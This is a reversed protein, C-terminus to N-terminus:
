LDDMPIAKEWYVQFDEITTSSATYESVRCHKGMVAAIPPMNIAGKPHYLFRDHPIERFPLARVDLAVGKEGLDSQLAEISELPLRPRRDRSSRLQEEATILKIMRIPPASDPAFVDDFLDIISADFYPDMWYVYEQCSSIYRTLTTRNFEPNSADVLTGVVDGSQEEQDFLPLSAFSSFVRDQNHVYAALKHYNNNQPLSSYCFQWDGVVILCVRARTIAVNLLNYTRELWGLSGENIGEALVTSFLMFDREDGQYQHATGSTVRKSNPYSRELWDRISNEQARYPTVIGISSDILGLIELRQLLAPVGKQLGALEINNRGSGNQPREFAGRIDVWHIGGVKNIFQNQYGRRTLDTKVNLLGGYFNQNSFNIIRADSRYHEDLLITGPHNGISREALDYLSISTYAYKEMPVQYRNGIQREIVRSLTAVHRLQNPDGIIVNKRSRFLLPIASPIDCQSAEDVIVIDFLGPILPFNSRATLNTIAWVPFLKLADPFTSIETQKLDRYLAPNENYTITTLQKVASIYRKARELTENDISAARNFWTLRMYEGAVQFLAENAQQYQHLAEPESPLAELRDNIDELATLVAWLMLLHNWSNLITKIDDLAPADDLFSFEPHKGDLFEQLSSLSVLHYFNEQFFGRCDSYLQNREGNLLDLNGLIAKLDDELAGMDLLSLELRELDRTLGAPLLSACGQYDTKAAELEAQLAQNVAMLRAAHLADQLDSWQRYQEEIADNRLSAHEQDPEINALLVILDDVARRRQNRIGLLGLFRNWLSVRGDLHQKLIGGPQELRTLLEEAEQGSCDVAIAQQRPSLNKYAEDLAQGAEFNAQTLGDVQHRSRMGEIADLWNQILLSLADLNEKPPWALADGGFPGWQSEFGALRQLIPYRDPDAFLSRLHAALQKRQDKFVLAQHTFTSVTKQLQQQEIESHRVRSLEQARISLAEPVLPVLRKQELQHSRLQGLLDRVHELQKEAAMLAKRVSQYRMHYASLDVKQAQSLASEMQEVAKMRYDRTGTRIAGPFGVEAQLREMVVDVAKNNHSALLATKGNIYAESVLNLVLQSKGTGPPGTIVTLLSQDVAHVAKRQQDNVDTVYFCEDNLFSPPDPYEDEPFKDLMNKLAEPVSNAYRREALEDLETLLNGTFKSSAWFLGAGNFISFEPLKEIKYRGAEYIHLPRSLYECLHGIIFDEISAFDPRTDMFEEYGRIFEEIEESTFKLNMLPAYSINFEDVKLLVSRGSLNDVTITAYLMPSIQKHHTVVLPMGLCLQDKRSRRDLFRFLPDRRYPENFEFHLHSQGFIFEEVQERDVDLIYLDKLSFSFQQQYEHNLCASYYKMLRQWTNLGAPESKAEGPDRRVQRVVPISRPVPPLPSASNRVSQDSSYSHASFSNASASSEHSAPQLGPPLPRQRRVVTIDVINQIVFTREEGRLHCFARLYSGDPYELPTITRRTVQGSRDRYTIDLDEEKQIGLIIIERPSMYGM